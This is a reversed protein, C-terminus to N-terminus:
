LIGTSNDGFKEPIGKKIKSFESICNRRDILLNYITGEYFKICEFM